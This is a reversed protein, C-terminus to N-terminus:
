RARHWGLLTLRGDASRRVAAEVARRAGSSGFAQAHVLITRNADRSGDGDGDMGDDAVWVVLYIPLDIRPAPLLDRIPAHAYLRWQPSDAGFVAAGDRGDSERQRDATLNALNLLRGDPARPEVAGDNFTSQLNAPPPALVSSWDPVTALDHLARELAAEAGSAAEAAHRYSAAIMTETTTLTILAAGIVGLLVMLLLALVLAAGHERGRLSARVTM